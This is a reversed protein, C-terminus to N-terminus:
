VLLHVQCCCQVLNLLRIFHGVQVSLLVVYWMVAFDVTQDSPGKNCTMGKEGGKNEAM